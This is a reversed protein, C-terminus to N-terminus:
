KEKALPAEKVGADKEVEGSFGKRIEGFFQGIDKGPNDSSALTALAIIGLVFILFILVDKM